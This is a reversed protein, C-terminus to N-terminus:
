QFDAGQLGEQVGVQLLVAALDVIDVALVDGLLQSGLGVGDAEDQGAHILILEEGGHDEVASQGSLGEGHAFGVVLAEIQFGALDLSRGKILVARQRGSKAAPM